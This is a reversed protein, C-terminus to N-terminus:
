GFLRPRRLCADIVTLGAVANITHVGVLRRQWTPSIRAIETELYRDPDIREIKNLVIAHGYSTSCDQSPRYHNGEHLFVRGAPRASRVDSKIPNRRHSHWPGLPSEAWYLYLEDNTPIREQGIAVFMWWFEGIRAITADAAMVGSLLVGVLEWKEPFSVARYLEVTMNEGTEPLLYHTGEWEFLFPHSLHYDRQLVPIPEGVPGTRDIELVSIHGRPRGAIWEEFFVHYRDRSKVPFPDAWFRDKAPLLSKFRYPMLDPTDADDASPSGIRYAIFWQDWWLLKTLKDRLLRGTLRLLLRTMEINTPTSYMRNSYPVPHSSVGSDDPLAAAGENYLDRLKRLLFTASKWYYKRRNRVVSRPDTRAYSRYIVRGGDLEETLIQLISGSVPAGEMVEWFGAPTGRKVLNDGHHYSWVGYRAISLVRGRLIRFRGLVVAVDLDYASITEIDTDSFYDSHRTMIPKVRLTPLDHVLSQIDTPTFPDPEARFLLNDLKTYLTYFIRSRGRLIRRWFSPKPQPAEDERLIVLVVEAVDSARLDRIVDHIWRSVTPSNLLLAVRL